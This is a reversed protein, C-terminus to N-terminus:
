GVIERAYVASDRISNIKYEKNASAKFKLQIDNM